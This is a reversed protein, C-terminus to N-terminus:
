AVWRTRRKAMTVKYGPNSPKSRPLQDQTASQGGPRLRAGNNSPNSSRGSPTKASHSNGSNRSLSCSPRLFAHLRRM